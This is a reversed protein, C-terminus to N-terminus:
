ERCNRKGEARRDRRKRGADAGRDPASGIACDLPFGWSIPSPRATSLASHPIILRSDPTPYDPTLATPRRMLRGATAALPLGGSEPFGFASSFPPCRTFQKYCPAPKRRRNEPRCSPEYLVICTYFRKRCEQSGVALCSHFRLTGSVLLPTKIRSVQCLGSFCSAEAKANSRECILINRKVNVSICPCVSSLRVEPGSPAIEEGSGM